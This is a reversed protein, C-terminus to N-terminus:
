AQKSHYRVGELEASHADCTVLVAGHHRATAYTLADAFSLGHELALDGVELATGTTLPVVQAREALAIAELTMSEDRERKVWQYLEFQLCTPVVLSAPDLLASEFSAALPGDALWEICGCTDVLNAM